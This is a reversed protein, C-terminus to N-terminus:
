EDYAVGPFPIKSNGTLSYFERGWEKDEATDMVHKRETHGDAYAFNATGGYEGNGGPHHRGIANMMTASTILSGSTKHSEETIFNNKPLHGWFGSSAPINHAGSPSASPHFFGNTPRHSKSELTSTAIAKWNDAFETVLVTESENSVHSMRVLRYLRQTGGVFKNRPILAENATYATWRAQRDPGVGAGQVQGSMSADSHTNTAPHGGNEMEPCQFSEESASGGNFLSWSWHIYGNAGHSGTQDSWNWHNGSLGSPYVYSPPMHDKNTVTYDVIAVGVQRMNSACQIARAEKRASGLAPLLIGILLAIISIVVLLEILTFALRQENRGIRKM